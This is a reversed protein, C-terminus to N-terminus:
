AMGALAAHLQESGYPKNVVPAKPYEALFATGDGYGTAFIFPVRRAALAAAVPASTEDGGLNVDLLGFDFRHQQLLALAPAVGSVTMVEAAGLRRLQEEADMAIIMSDEVLLVRKDKLPAVGVMTKGRAGEEAGVAEGAIHRGPIRFRAHLGTVRYAIEAEGGLDFPVSQEIITSGFGRRTPAVVAPGGEESWELVLDGNEQRQWDVEVHGGDSLAGYKAANTVLEHVVLALSTFASPQILLNPGSLKLRTRKAGLYAGAETELLDILRAPGWRDATV